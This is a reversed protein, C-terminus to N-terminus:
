RWITQQITTTQVLYIDANVFLLIRATLRSFRPSSDFVERSILQARKEHMFFM